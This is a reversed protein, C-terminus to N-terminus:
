SPCPKEKPCLADLQARLDHLTALSEALVMATEPSGTAVWTWDSKGKVSLYVHHDGFLPRILVEVRDLDSDRVIHRKGLSILHASGICKSMQIDYKDVLSM